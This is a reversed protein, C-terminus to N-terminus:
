PQKSILSGSLLTPVTAFNAPANRPHLRQKVGISTPLADTGYLAPQHCSACSMNSDVTLRPDFFLMRGLDVREKTIPSEPTAMNKPVPQFLEQARKLLTVDDEEAATALSIALVAAISAGTVSLNAVSSKM